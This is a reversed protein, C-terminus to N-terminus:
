HTPPPPTFGLLKAYLKRYINKQMDIDNNSKLLLQYNLKQHVRQRSVTSTPKMVIKSSLNLLIPTHDSSLHLCSEAHTYAHVINNTYDGGAIFRNGLAEFHTKFQVEKITHKPPCYIASLTIQGMWDQVISSTAQFHEM